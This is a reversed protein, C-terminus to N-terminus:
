SKFGKMERWESYIFRFFESKNKFGFFEADKRFKEAMEETVSMGIVKTDSGHELRAPM